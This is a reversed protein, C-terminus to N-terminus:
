DEPCPTWNPEGNSGDCCNSQNQTEIHWKNNDEFCSYITENCINNANLYISISSSLDCISAPLTEIQNNNFNLVEIYGGVNFYSIEFPVNTIESYSLDLLVLRRYPVDLYSISNFSSYGDYTFENWIQYGINQLEISSLSNNVNKIKQLIDLDTQCYHDNNFDDGGCIGCEDVGDACGSSDEPGCNTLFLLFISFFIPFLRINHM